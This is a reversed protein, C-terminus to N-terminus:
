CIRLVRRLVFAFPIVIVLYGVIWPDLLLASVGPVVGFLRYKEMDLQFTQPGAGMPQVPEIPNRDYHVGDVILTKEYTEGRYRFALVYPEERGDCRLKWEAVGAVVKKGQEDYDERVKRIWGGDARVGKQPVIHVYNDSRSIEAKGFFMKVSVPEGPQPPVYGIRFWAWVAVMAVPIISAGLPKGEAGLTKLGIRGTNTRYRRVAERDGKKKAERILEKLRAKDEKCRRLLNQNTTFKRVVTLILATGIALIFLVVDRPLHLMWGLIPDMVALCVDNALDIITQLM